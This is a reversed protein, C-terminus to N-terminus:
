FERRRVRELEINRTEVNIGDQQFVLRLQLLHHDDSVLFVNNSVRRRDYAIKAIEFDDESAHKGELEREIINPLNTRGSVEHLRNKNKLNRVCIMFTTFSRYVEKIGRYAKRWANSIFIHDGIRIISDVYEKYLLLRLANVDLVIDAM